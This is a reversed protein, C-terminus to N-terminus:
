CVEGIVASYHLIDCATTWFTGVNLPQNDKSHMPGLPHRERHDLLGGGEVGGEEAEIYVGHKCYLLANSLKFNRLWAIYLTCQLPYRLAFPRIRSRFHARRALCAHWFLGYPM